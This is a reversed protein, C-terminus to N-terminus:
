GSIIEKDRFERDCRTGILQHDLCFLILNNDSLYTAYMPLVEKEPILQFQCKELNNQLFLNILCGSGAKARHDPHKILFEKKNIKKLKGFDIKDLILFLVEKERLEESRALFHNQVDLYFPDTPVRLYIPLNM